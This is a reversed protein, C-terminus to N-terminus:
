RGTLKSWWRRLLSTSQRTRVRERAEDSLPRSIQGLKAGLDADFGDLRDRQPQTLEIFAAAINDELHPISSTGPIPVMVPSRHLLWALAIARHSVGHEDGVDTLAAVASSLDGAALPFWPLFAIGAEECADLVPESDRDALNYRNQVSAIPVIERAEALQEATVNSLGVHRIKGQRRLDALTGVSEAFPVEPDPRHLQYLDITDLRLRRLSGECALRLHEPTGVPSWQGPGQRTLGGKTAIVLDDAYPHLADAIDEENVDPGYADSTDILNVGLEVARRLVDGPRSPDEHPGWVGEGTLRMAGFGMRRVVLDGGLAFTGCTDDTIPQGRM